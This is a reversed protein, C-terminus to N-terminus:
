IGESYPVEQEQLTMRAHVDVNLAVPNLRAPRIFTVPLSQPDRALPDGPSYSTSLAFPSLHSCELTLYSWPLATSLGLALLSTGRHSSKGNKKIRKSSHIRGHKPQM